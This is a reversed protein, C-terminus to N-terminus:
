WHATSGDASVIAGSVVTTDPGAAVVVLVLAVNMKEVLSGFAVNSHASFPAANAGHSEGVVTEFRAPPRCVKATRATSRAPL